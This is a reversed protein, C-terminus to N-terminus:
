CRFIVCSFASLLFLVVGDERTHTNCHFNKRSSFLCFIVSGTVREWWSKAVKLAQPTNRSIKKWRPRTISCCKRVPPRELALIYYLIFPIHALILNRRLIEVLSSHECVCLLFFSCFHNVRVKKRTVLM